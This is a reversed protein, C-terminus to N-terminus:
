EWPKYFTDMNKSIHTLRPGYYDMIYESGDAPRVVQLIYCLDVSNYVFFYICTCLINLWLYKIILSKEPTTDIKAKQIKSSNKEWNQANLMDRNFIWGTAKNIKQGQRLKM